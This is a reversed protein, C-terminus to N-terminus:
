KRKAERYQLEKPAAIKRYTSRSAFWEQTYFHEGCKKCVLSRVVCTGDFNSRSAIVKLKNSCRPCIM